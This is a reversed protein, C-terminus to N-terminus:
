TIELVNPERQVDVLWTPGSSYQFVRADPYCLAKFECYRCPTPLGLNGAKGVPVPEFPIPPPEKQKVINKAKKVQWEKKNLEDSLDYIDVHINGFQKDVAIFGARDKYTVSEDDRSGYLYSSLQSLYGFPDDDRLGNNIFKQIGRTSSSKIDFVMGDIVCDRSGRVGFVEVRDQLGTVRHGSAKAYGLTLAEVIDGFIFKNKADYSLPISKDASNVSHWLKRSCPTGLSSLRLNGRPQAEAVLQRQLSESVLSGVWEGIEKTFGEGTRAVRRIDKELTYPNM